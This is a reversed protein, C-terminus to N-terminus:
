KLFRFGERKEVFFIRFYSIIYCIMSFQKINVILDNCDPEFHEFNTGLKQTTLIKNRWDGELKSNESFLLLHM